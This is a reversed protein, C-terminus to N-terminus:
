IKERKKYVPLHKFQVGYIIKKMESFSLNHLNFNNFIETLSINVYM